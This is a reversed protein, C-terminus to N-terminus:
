SSKQKQVLADDSWRKPFLSFAPVGRVGDPPKAGQVGKGSFTGQSQVLADDGRVGDPPKAGQVGKGSFTGQSQVLANDGQVGKLSFVPTPLFTRPEREPARQIRHSAAEQSSKGM